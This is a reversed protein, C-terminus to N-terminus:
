ADTANRGELKAIYVEENPRAANKSQRPPGFVAEPIIHNPMPAMMPQGNEPIRITGKTTSSSAIAMM